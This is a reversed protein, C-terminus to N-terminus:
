NAARKPELLIFVCKANLLSLYLTWFVGCTSQFPVRYPLPMFRFNVLKTPAVIDPLAVCHMGSSIRVQALPWVQWNALIAPKYLDSFRQRIHKADRGEMIGMSGIFLSLQPFCVTLYQTQVM